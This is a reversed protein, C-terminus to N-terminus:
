QEKAVATNSWLGRNALPPNYDVRMELRSACRRRARTLASPEGARTMLGHTETPKSSAEL